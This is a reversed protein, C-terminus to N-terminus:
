SYSEQFVAEDEPQQPMQFQMPLKTFSMYLSSLLHMNPTIHLRGLEGSQMEQTFWKLGGFFLTSNMNDRAKPELFSSFVLHKNKVWLNCLIPDEEDHKVTKVLIMIEHFDQRAIDDVSLLNLKGGRTLAYGKEHVEYMRKIATRHFKMFLLSVQGIGPVNRINSEFYVGSPHEETIITDKVSFFSVGSPSYMRM